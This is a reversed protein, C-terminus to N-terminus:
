IGMRDEDNEWAYLDFKAISIWWENYIIKVNLHVHAPFDWRAM